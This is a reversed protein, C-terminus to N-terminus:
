LLVYMIYVIIIHKNYGVSECISSFPLAIPFLSLLLHSCYMCKCVLNYQVLLMWKYYHKPYQWEWQESYDRIAKLMSMRSAQMAFSGRMIPTKKAPIFVIPAIINGKPQLLDWGIGFM